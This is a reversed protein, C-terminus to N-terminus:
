SDAFMLLKKDGKRERLSSWWDSDQGQVSAVEFSECLQRVENGAAKDSSGPGTSRDRAGIAPLDAAHLRRTAASRWVIGVPTPRHFYSNTSPYFLVPSSSPDHDFM